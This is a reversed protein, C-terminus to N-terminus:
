GFIHLRPWLHSILLALLPLVFPFPRGTLAKGKLQPFRHTEILPPETHTHPSDFLFRHFCLQDKFNETKTGFGGLLMEM